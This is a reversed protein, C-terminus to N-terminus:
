SLAREQMQKIFQKRDESAFFASGCVAVDAKSSVIDKITKMNVGGDVSILYQYKRERRIRDLEKIKALTSPILSQGGFGPNVTMVLILD